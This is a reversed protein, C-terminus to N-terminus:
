KRRTNQRISIIFQYILFAIIIKFLLETFTLKDASTMISFPNINTAFEDLPSKDLSKMFIFYFVYFVVFMYKEIKAYLFPILCFIINIDFSLNTKFITLLMGFLIIWALSLAWDQSHNSAIGHTKFVVWDFFDKGSKKEKDLEEERKQMEIAYYNNAEIINNQKESSDKLIRATERDKINKVRLDNIKLSNIFICERLSLISLLSLNQFICEYKFTVYKLEFNMIIECDRFLLTNHFSVNNILLSGRFTSNDFFVEELFNSDKIIVDKYFICNAEFKLNNDLTLVSIDFKDMFECEKFVFRLGKIRNAFIFKTSPFIVKNFTIEFLKKLDLIENEYISNRQNSLQSKHYNIEENIQKKFLNHADIYHPENLSTWNNKECHLICKGNEYEDLGCDIVNCMKSVKM